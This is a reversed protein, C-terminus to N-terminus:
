SPLGPSMVAEDMGDNTVLEPDDFHEEAKAESGDVARGDPFVEGVLLGLVVLVVAM